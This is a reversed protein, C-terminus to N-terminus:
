GAKIINPIEGVSIIRYEMEASDGAELKFNRNIRRAISDFNEEKVGVLLALFQSDSYKTFVDVQRLSRYMARKLGQFRHKLKEKSQIAEGKYDVITCLMMYISVGRREMNRRLINYIATFIHYSCFYAGPLKDLKEAEVADQDQQFILSQIDSINDAYDRLASEISHHAERLRESVSIGLKERYYAVTQDYLRYAAQLDKKWVLAEIMGAQWDEDPYINSAAQYIRYMDEYRKHKKYDEALWIICHNYLEKLTLSETIVWMETSIRPLLEGAYLAFAEEYLARKRDIADAREVGAPQLSEAQRCLEQFQVADVTLEPGPEPLIISNESVLYKEGPFGVAALKKRAQYLLNYFSNGEDSLDRYGLINALIEAKSVGRRQNLWVFQLLRIYNAGAAHGFGIARGNVKVSFGGLMHIEVHDPKEGM